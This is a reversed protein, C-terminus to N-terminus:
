SLANALAEESQVGVLRDILKGDRFVLITPISSVQYKAALEAHDDVNVKGVVAKGDFREAIADITPGIARCPACWQAWFDVLVPLEGNVAQEFSDTDFTLTTSTAM